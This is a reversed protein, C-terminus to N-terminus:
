YGCQTPISFSASKFSHPSLAGVDDITFPWCSLSFWFLWYDLLWYRWNCFYNYRDGCEFHMWFHRLVSTPSRSGLMEVPLLQVTTCLQSFYIFLECWNWFWKRSSGALVFASPKTWDRNLTNYTIVNIEDFENWFVWTKFGHCSYTWGTEWPM